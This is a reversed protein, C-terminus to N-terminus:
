EGFREELDSILEFILCFCRRNFAISGRIHEDAVLLVLPELVHVDYSQLAEPLSLLAFYSELEELDALLQLAFLLALLLFIFLLPLADECVLLASYLHLM